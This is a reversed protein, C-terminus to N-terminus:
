LVRVDSPAARLGVTSGEAVAPRGNTYLPAHVTFRTLSILLGGRDPRVSLVTDRLTGTAPDTLELEWPYVAIQVPGEARVASALEGSGGLRVMSGSRAPTAVGELVNAGTLQAVMVNAPSRILEAATAIQVLRGGEIVAVRDALSAADEFAHTVLLTPLALSALLGALEDRVQGRTITDLAGFPEDLLLVRPRRALARALAVRQREGGSLQQPRARALHGVGFRELLDPRDRKGAFRVNGAVTLHPFLGYDQPLYGVHRREAGVHVKREAEFWVEDGLSIHGAEPRELGAVTRLLSTKGSGSPGVLVITEAGVSLTALLDFARRALTIDIDLVDMPARAAKLDVPHGRQRRDLLVGIAIALDLNADFLSYVALPLTQTTGEFSGAFLITAGFEGIGRAFAVRPLPASGAAPSRSRSACCGGSRAPVSRGPSM